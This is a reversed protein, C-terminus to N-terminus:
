RVARQPGTAAMMEVKTFNLTIQDASCVTIAAEPVRVIQATDEDRIILNTLTDGVKCAMGRPRTAVAERVKQVAPLLLGAAPPPVPRVISDTRTPRTAPVPLEPAAKEGKEVKWTVEVRAEGDVGDFKIYAAAHATSVTALALATLGLATLRMNTRATRTNM